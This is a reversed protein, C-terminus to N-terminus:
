AATVTNLVRCERNKIEWSPRHNAFLAAVCVDCRLKLNQGIKAFSPELVIDLVAVAL